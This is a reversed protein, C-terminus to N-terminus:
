PGINFRSFTSAPLGSASMRCNTASKFDPTPRLSVSGGTTSAVSRLAITLSAASIASPATHAFAARECMAADSLANGCAFTCSSAKKTPFMIGVTTVSSLATAAATWRRVSPM